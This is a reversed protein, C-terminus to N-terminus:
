KKAPYFEDHWKMNKIKKRYYMSDGILTVHPQIKLNQNSKRAEVLKVCTSNYASDYYFRLNAREKESLFRYLDEWVMGESGDKLTVKRPHLLQEAMSLQIDAPMVPGNDQAGVSNLGAFLCILAFVFKLQKM